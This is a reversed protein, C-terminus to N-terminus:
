YTSDTLVLINEIFLKIWVELSSKIRMEPNIFLDGQYSIGVELRIGKKSTVVPKMARFYAHLAFESKPEIIGSEQSVSFDDGLSELGSLRWAVPLLTSNRLYLTKTDKRFIFEVKPCKLRFALCPFNWQFHFCTFTFTGRSPTYTVPDKFENKKHNLESFFPLVEVILSFCTDRM